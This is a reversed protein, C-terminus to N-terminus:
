QRRPPKTSQVQFGAGTNPRQLKVRGYRSAVESTAFYSAQAGEFLKNRLKESSLNPYSGILLSLSAAVLPASFSTGSFYQVSGQTDNLPLNTGQATLDVRTGFNSSSAPSLTSQHNGVVILNAVDYCAPLLCSADLNQGQNGAAAVFFTGKESGNAMLATELLQVDKPVSGQYTFSLNVVRDGNAVAADLALALQLAELSSEEASGESDNAFSIKISHLLANPAFKNYIKDEFEVGSFVSAIATAHTQWNRAQKQHTFNTQKVLVRSVADTAPFVGSDIIAVGVAQLKECKYELAKCFEQVGMESMPSFASPSDVGGGDAANNAGYLTLLEQESLLALKKAPMQHKRNRAILNAIQESQGFSTLGSNKKYGHVAVVQPLSQFRYVIQLNYDELLERNSKSTVILQGYFPRAQLIREQADVQSCAVFTLPSICLSFKCLYFKAFKGKSIGYYFKRVLGLLMVHM